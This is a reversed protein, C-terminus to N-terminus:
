EEYRLRVTMGTRHYERAAPVDYDIRAASEM